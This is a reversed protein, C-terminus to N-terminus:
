NQTLHIISYLFQLTWIWNSKLNSKELQIEILTWNEVVHGDLNKIKTALSNNSAYVLTQFWNFVLDYIYIYLYIYINISFGNCIKSTYPKFFLLSIDYMIQVTYNHNNKITDM